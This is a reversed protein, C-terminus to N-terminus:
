TALCRKEHLVCCTRNYMNINDYHPRRQISDTHTHTHTHTHTM